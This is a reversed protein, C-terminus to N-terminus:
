GHSGSIFWLHGQRALETQDVSLSLSVAFGIILLILGSFGFAKRVVITGFGEFPNGDWWSIANDKEERTSRFLHLSLLLTGAITSVHGWSQLNM